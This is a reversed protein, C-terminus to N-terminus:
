LRFLYLSYMVLKVRLIQYFVRLFIVFTLIKKPSKLVLLRLVAGIFGSHEAVAIGLLSVLVTGLPAFSTFNNVLNLIIKHLGEVSLLNVPKIEQGTGPHIVTLDFLSIIWSTFLIMVSLITFLTVPNPLKNGVKEIVALFRDLFKVKVEKQM